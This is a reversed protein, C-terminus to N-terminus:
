RLWRLPVCHLTSGFLWPQYGHSLLSSRLQEVTTRGQPGPAVSRVGLKANTYSRGRSMGLLM